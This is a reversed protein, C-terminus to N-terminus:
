WKSPKRYELGYKKYHKDWLEKDIKDQEIERLREKEQMQFIEDMADILSFNDIANKSLDVKVVNPKSNLFPIIGQFSDDQLQNNYALWRENSIDGKEKRYSQHVEQPISEYKHEWPFFKPNNMIIEQCRKYMDSGVFGSTASVIALYEQVDKPINKQTFM